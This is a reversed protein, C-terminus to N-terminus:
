HFVVWDFLELPDLVQLRFCKTSLNKKVKGLGMSLFFNRSITKSRLDPERELAIIFVFIIKTQFMTQRSQALNQKICSL